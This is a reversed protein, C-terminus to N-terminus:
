SVFKVKGLFDGVAIQRSDSANFTGCRFPATKESDVMNKIEPGDLEYIQFAGTGRPREGLTIFRNSSPVWRTCHVTYNLSKEAYTLIQPKDLDM